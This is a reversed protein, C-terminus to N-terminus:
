SEHEEERCSLHIEAITGRVVLADCRVQNLRLNKGCIEINGRHTSLTICTDSFACIGLHNEVLLANIGMSTIRAYRGSLDGLWELAPAHRSKSAKM